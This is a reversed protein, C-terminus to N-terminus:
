QVRQSIEARIAQRTSNDREQETMALPDPRKGEKVAAKIESFGSTEARRLDPNSGGKEAWEKEKAAVATAVAADIKAKEAAAAKAAEKEAFGYKKAAYEIPNMRQAQAEKILASPADPMPAGDHLSQYKWNLDAISLIASAAESRLNSVFEPSGPVTNKGPVFKGEADRGPAGASPPAFPTDGPLFGGEKAKEALTKYYLKEAEINAKENAWTDLAPAIQKDYLEQQSRKALEAAELTQSASTVIETFGATVKPDLAKIQEDTLGTKKLVEEVSIAM